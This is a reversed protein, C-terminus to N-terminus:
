CFTAKSVSGTAYSPIQIDSLGPNYYYNIYNYFQRNQLLIEHSKGRPCNRDIEMNVNSLDENNLQKLLWNSDFRM